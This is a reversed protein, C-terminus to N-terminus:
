PLSAGGNTAIVEIVARQVASWQGVDAASRADGQVGGRKSECVRRRAFAHVPTGFQGRVHVLQDLSEASRRLSDTAARLLVKGCGHVPGYFPEQYRPDSM